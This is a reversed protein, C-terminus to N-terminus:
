ADWWVATLARTTQGFNTNSKGLRKKTQQEPKNQKPNLSRSM